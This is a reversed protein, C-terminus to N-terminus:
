FKRNDKNRQWLILPIQNRVVNVQGIEINIEQVQFIVINQYGWCWDILISKKREGWLHFVCNKHLLFIHIDVKKRRM